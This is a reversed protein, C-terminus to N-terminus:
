AHKASPTSAKSMHLSHALFHHCVRQQAATLGAAEADLALLAVTALLRLLSLRTLANLCSWM